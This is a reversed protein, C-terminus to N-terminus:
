YPHIASIMAVPTMNKDTVTANICRNDLLNTAPSSSSAGLRGRPSYEANEDLDRLELADPRNKIKRRSMIFFYANAAVLLGFLIFANAM